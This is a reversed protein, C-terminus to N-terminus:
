SGRRTSGSSRPRMVSPAMVREIRGGVMQQMSTLNDDITDAQITKAEPDIVIVLIQDSM